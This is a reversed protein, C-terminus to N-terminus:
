LCKCHALEYFHGHIAYMEIHWKSQTVPFIANTRLFLPNQLSGLLFGKYFQCLKFVTNLGLARAELARGDCRLTVTREFVLFPQRRPRVEEPEATPRKSNFSVAGPTLVM